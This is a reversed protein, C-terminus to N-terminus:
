VWERKTESIWKLNNWNIELRSGPLNNWNIVGLLDNLVMCWVTGRANNVLLM